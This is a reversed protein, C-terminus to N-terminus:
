ISRRESAGTESMFGLRDLERLILVMGFDDARRRCRDSMMQADDARGQLLAVEALHLVTVTEWAIARGAECARLASELSVRAGDLDGITVLNVGIHLDAPGNSSAPGFTPWHGAHPRLDVLLSEAVSASGLRWTPYTAVAAVHTRFGYPVFPLLEHWEDFAEKAAPIDDEILAVIAQLPYCAVLATAAEPVSGLSARYATADATWQNPWGEAAIVGLRTADLRVSDELWADLFRRCDDFRGQDAARVARSGFVISPLALGLPEVVARYQDVTRDVAEFDGQKQHVMAQWSLTDRKVTAPLDRALAAAEDVLAEWEEYRGLPERSVISWGIGLWRDFPDDLRRSIALAADSLALRETPDTDFLHSNSLKGLVWMREKLYEDAPCADLADLANECLRRVHPDAMQAFAGTPGLYWYAAM